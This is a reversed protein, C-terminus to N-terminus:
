VTFYSELNNITTFNTVNRMVNENHEVIPKAFETFKILESESLNCLRKIETCVSLLREEDDKIDDYSEDIFPSFTQYGRSKMFELMKYPNLVIFPHKMAICKFTKETVFKGPFTDPVHMRLKMKSTTPNQYFLTETVVSFYTDEFYKHDDEIIDVPNDRELTKNLVLPIKDKISSIGSYNINGALLELNDESCDFSYYSQDLLHNRVVYELLEIRHQRHVKNFCLFKKEKPGIMYEKHYVPYTKGTLELHSTGIVIFNKIIGVSGLYKVVHEEATYDGSWYFLKIDPTNSFYLAVRAIKEIGDIIVGETLCEFFFIKTGANYFDQIEEIVSAISRNKFSMSSHAGAYIHRVKDFLHLNNPWYTQWLLKMYDIYGPYNYSDYKELGM